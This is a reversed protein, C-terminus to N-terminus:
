RGRYECRGNWAACEEKICDPYFYKEVLITSTGKYVGTEEDILNNETTTTQVTKEQKYPCKMSVEM